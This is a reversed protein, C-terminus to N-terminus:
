GKRRKEMAKKKLDKQYRERDQDIQDKHQYFFNTFYQVVSLKVFPSNKILDLMEYIRDSFEGYEEREDKEADLFIEGKGTFLYEPNIHYELFLNKFFTYGPKNKGYEVQSMFSHSVGVSEAFDTQWMNLYKRLEVIRKGFEKLEKNKIDPTEV